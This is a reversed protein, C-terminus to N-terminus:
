FPHGLEMYFINGERTMGYDFGIMTNVNWAFRLGVAYSTRWQELNLEVKDFVRGAAIVPTAMFRLHHNWIRVEAFAYRIEARAMVTSNGIFRNRLYGELTQYGGLGRRAEDNPVSLDNLVYFPADGFRMAYMMNAAFVLKTQDPLLGKYFKFTTNVQTYNHSSGWAKNSTQALAQAVVGASPNPEFDRSDYTIGFRVLNLWGGDFGIVKGTRIEERLKTEQQVAGDINNGSYDDVWYRSIQLGFLPRLLGGMAYYQVNGVLAFQQAWYDNYRRWTQGNVNRNRDREYDNFRQYTKNSGPYNFEGLTSAGSGFYNEFKNSFYVTYASLRLPKNKFYPVDYGVRFSFTGNTSASVGFDIKKDYPVYDYLVNGEKKGNLFYEVGVGYNFGTEHDIGFLPILTFYNGEKKDKLLQQPIKPRNRAYDPLSDTQSQALTVCAFLLLFTLLCRNIM